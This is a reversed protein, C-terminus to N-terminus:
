EDIIYSDPPYVYDGLTDHTKITVVDNDPGSLHMIGSMGKEALIYENGTAYSSFVEHNYVDRVFTVRAKHYAPYRREANQAMLIAEDLAKRQDNLINVKELDHKLGILRNSLAM